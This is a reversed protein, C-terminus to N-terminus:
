ADCTATKSAGNRAPGWPAMQSERISGLRRRCGRPWERRFDRPRAAAPPHGAAGLPGTWHARPIQSRHCPPVLANTCHTRASSAASRSPGSPTAQPPWQPRSLPRPALHRRAGVPPSEPAGWKRGVHATLAAGGPRGLALVQPAPRPARGARTVRPEPLWGALWGSPVDLPM